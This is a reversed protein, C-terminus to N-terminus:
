EYDPDPDPLEKSDRLARKVAQGLASNSRKRQEEPLLHRIITEVFRVFPGRYHPRKSPSYSVRPPNGTLDEYVEGLANVFFYFRRDRPAGGREAPLKGMAEKAQVDINRLTTVLTKKDIGIIIELSVISALEKSNNSPAKSDKLDFLDALEEALQAIKSLAARMHRPRVGTPLGYPALYFFDRYLYCERFHERVKERLKQSPEKLNIASEIERWAEETLEIQPKSTHALTKPM